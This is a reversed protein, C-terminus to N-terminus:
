AKKSVIPQDWAWAAAGPDYVRPDYLLEDSSGDDQIPDHLQQSVEQPEALVTAVAYEDHSISVEAISYSTLPTRARREIVGADNPDLFPVENLSATPKETSVAVGRRLAVHRKMLVQPTEPRILLVPQDFKAATM